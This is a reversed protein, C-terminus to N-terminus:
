RAGAAARPGGGVSPGQVRIRERYRSPLLRGAQESVEILYPGVVEAGAVSAEAAHQLATAQAEDAAIVAGAFQEVWQGGEGLFVVAGDALRNATIMQLAM